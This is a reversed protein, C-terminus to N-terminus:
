TDDKLLLDLDLNNNNEFYSSLYEIGVDALQELAKYANDKQSPYIESIVNKLISGQDIPDITGTHYKTKKNALIRNKFDLKKHIAICVALRYGDMENKFLGDSVLEKLRLDMKESIGIEKKETM